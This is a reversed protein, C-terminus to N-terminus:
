MAEGLARLLLSWRDMVTHQHKKVREHADRQRAHRAAEAQHHRAMAILREEGPGGQEYRALAEEHERLEEEHSRVQEAHDRLAKAHGRLARELGELDGLAKEIEHQWLDIDDRWAALDGGWHRHESHMAAHISTPVEAPIATKM